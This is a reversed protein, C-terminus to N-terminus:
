LFKVDLKVALTASSENWSTISFGFQHLSNACYLLVHSWERHTQQHHRFLPSWFFNYCTFQRFHFPFCVVMLEFPRLAMCLFLLFVLPSSFLSSSVGFPLGFTSVFFLSLFSLSAFFLPLYLASSLLPLM